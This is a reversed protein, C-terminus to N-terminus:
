LWLFCCSRFLCGPLAVSSPSLSHFLPTPLYISLPPRRKVKKLRLWDIVLGWTQKFLYDNIIEGSVGNRLAAIRVALRLAEDTEGAHLSPDRNSSVAASNDTAAPTPLAGSLLRVAPAELHQQRQQQPGQQLMLLRQGYVRRTLAAKLQQQTLPEIKQPLWHGALRQLLGPKATNMQATTATTAAATNTEGPLSLAAASAVSASAPPLCPDGFFSSRQSKQQQMLRVHLLWLHLIFTYFVGNFGDPIGFASPCFRM